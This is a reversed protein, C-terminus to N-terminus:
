GTASRKQASAEETFLHRNEEVFDQMTKLMARGLDLSFQVGAPWEEDCSGEFEDILRLNREVDEIRSDLVQQVKEPAMLHAFCMTMIFESRIKHTPAPNDLERLLHQMGAETIRYVKRDPKGEQAVEKCSM